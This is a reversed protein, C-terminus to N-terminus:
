RVGIERLASYGARTGVSTGPNKWSNRIYAGLGQNLADQAGSWLANAGGARTEAAGVMGGALANAGGTMLNSINGTAQQGASATGGVASLGMGAINSYRGAQDQASRYRRDYEGLARNYANGYEQSALGQSEQMLGRLTGTSLAGGRSAASAEIARTARDMRYQTGPDQNPDYKFSFEPSFEGSETGAMLAALGKGGTERWPQYDARTTDYQRRNEAIAQQAAEYQLQAAREQARATKNASSRGLLGGLLSSGAGIVAAGTVPDIM